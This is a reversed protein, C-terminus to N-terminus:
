HTVHDRLCAYEERAWTWYDEIWTLDFGADDLADRVYERFRAVLEGRHAAEWAAFSTTPIDM